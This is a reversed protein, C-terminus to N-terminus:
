KKRKEVERAAEDAKAKAKASRRFATESNKEAETTLDTLDSIAKENAGSVMAKEVEHKLNEATQSAKAAKKEARTAKIEADSLNDLAAAFEGATGEEPEADLDIDEAALVLATVPLRSIIKDLPGGFPGLPQNKRLRFPLFVLSASSSYAEITDANASAVIEPEADIRAENLKIKLDAVPIKSNRDFEAALVRIKTGRWNENRTMLYALLLMLRSSADDWWWIDIRREGPDLAELNKWNEVGTNLVIINCGFRFATRLNRGYLVEHIGHTERVRRDFWNFIVTNAHLPGIGYTQVLLHVARNFDPASIVLPFASFNNEKIDNRLESETEERYKATQADDGEIIRVVTTFGSDGEIWSAFRLLRIRKEPDDSFLLLQPRWDRPHESEAAATLLNKRVQHLSYSRRSDAWRSPGSTRMLYQYVAFLVSVAILGSALDIALMVVLCAVAGILSIKSRYWRFQPRFSPSFARAEFFTAYNILGYSILFFMSVVPAILNLKGLGVTAFAIGASLLVGRRPNDNPGSGKAFPLLLPFIRDGALSQLIRPAGLFSAM